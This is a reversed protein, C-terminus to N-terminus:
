VVWYSVSLCIFLGFFLYSMPIALIYMFTSKGSPETTFFRGALALFVPSAPEIGTNSLDGPISLPLGSWYRAQFIGHISFGPLSCDTPNCLTLCSQTVSCVCMLLYEVDSIMLSVWILVAILYGKIGALTATMLLSFLYCDNPLIHRIPFGQVSNTSIYIPIAVISFLIPIEWSISVLVVTINLQAGPWLHRWEPSPSAQPHFFSRHRWPEGRNGWARLQPCSQPASLYDRSKRQKARGRSRMRHRWGCARRGPPGPTQTPKKPIALGQASSSPLSTSWM